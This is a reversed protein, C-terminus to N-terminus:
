WLVQSVPNPSTVLTEEELGITKRHRAFARAEKAPESWEGRGEGSTVLSYGALCKRGARYGMLCELIIEIPWVPWPPM